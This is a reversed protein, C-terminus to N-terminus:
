QPPISLHRRARKIAADIPEDLPNPQSRPQRIVSPITITRPTPPTILVTSDTRNAPPPTSIRYNPNIASTNSTLLFIIIGIVSFASLSLTFVFGYRFISSKRIPTDSADVHDYSGSHQNSRPAPKRRKSQGSRKAPRHNAVRRSFALADELETKEIYGDILSDAYPDDALIEPESQNEFDEFTPPERTPMIQMIPSVKARKSEM